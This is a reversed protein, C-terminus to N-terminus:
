LSKSREFAIILTKRFSCSSRSEKVKCITNSTEQYTPSINNFARMLKMFFMVFIHTKSVFSTTISAPKFFFDLNAEYFYTDNLRQKRFIVKNIDSM